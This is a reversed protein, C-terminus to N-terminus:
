RLRPIIPDRGVIGFANALVVVVILIVVFWIINDIQKPHGPAIVGLAYVALWGLFVVIVVFVFFEIVGM